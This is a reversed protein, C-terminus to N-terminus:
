SPMQLASMGRASLALGDLLSHIARRESGHVGRAEDETCRTAGGSRRWGEVRGGNVGVGVRGDGRGGDGAELVGSAWALASWPCSPLCRLVRSVRAEKACLHCLRQLPTSCATGSPQPSRAAVPASPPSPVRPRASPWLPARKALTCSRPSCRHYACWRNSGGRWRMSSLYAHFSCPCAYSYPRHAQLGALLTPPRRAFLRSASPPRIRFASACFACCRKWAPPHSVAVSM